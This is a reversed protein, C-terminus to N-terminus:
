KMVSTRFSKNGVRFFYVGSPMSAPLAYRGRGASVLPTSRGDLSIMVAKGTWGEPVILQRNRITPVGADMAVLGRVSTVPVENPVPTLTIYSRAWEGLIKLSATDPIFTALPPMQSPDNMFSISKFVQNM